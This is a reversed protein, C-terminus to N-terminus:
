QIIIQVTGTQEIKAAASVQGATVTYDGKFGRIKLEGNANTVGSENTWWDSYVAKRWAKFNPKESWDERLMAAPKKWHDGEWWGWVVFAEMAAESFAATLMDRTFRAQANEDYTEVDFETIHLPLGYQAFDALIDMVRKPSTLGASFHGQFGIGGLPVNKRRMDKIWDHYFEISKENLGGNNLIAYDNVFLPIEPAIEHAARFVEEVLGENGNEIFYQNVRVENVVDIAIPKYPAIFKMVTKVHGLVMRRQKKPNGKQALIRNPMYDEGPWIIPHARWPIDKEFAYKVSARYNGELSNEGNWGWDQWYLPLTAMNFNQEFSKHYAADKKNGEEVFKHGVFTGFNFAHKTMVASVTVGAKPAGNGDVVRITLDGKRHQEIKAEAEARWPADAAEGAYSVRNRPLSTIDANPGLNFLYAPGLQLTQKTLGMHFAIGAGGPAIDADSKGSVYYLKWDRSLYAAGEGASLYPDASQQVRVPSIIPTQAENKAEVGKAWYALLVVDGKNVPVTTSWNVGTSWSNLGTEKVTVELAKGGPVLPDNISRHTENKGFVQAATIAPPNILRAEAALGSKIAAYDSSLAAPVAPTRNDLQAYAQSFSFSLVICLIVFISKFMSIKELAM